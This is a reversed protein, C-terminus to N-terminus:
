LCAVGGSFQDEHLSSFFKLFYTKDYTNFIVVFQCLCLKWDLAGEAIQRWYQCFRRKSLSRNCVQTGMAPQVDAIAIVLAVM